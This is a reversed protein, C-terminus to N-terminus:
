REGAPRSLAAYSALLRRRTLAPLRDIEDLAADLATQDGAEAATLAAILPSNPALLHALARLERVRAKREDAPLDDRWPGFGAAARGTLTGV